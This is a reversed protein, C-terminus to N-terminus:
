RKAAAHDARRDRDVALERFDLLGACPHEAADIAWEPRRAVVREDDFALVERLINLYRRFRSIVQDHPHVVPAVCNVGHLEMGLADGGLMAVQDQLIKEVYGRLPIGCGAPERRRPPGCLGMSITSSLASM